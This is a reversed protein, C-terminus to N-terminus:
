GFIRYNDAKKMNKAPNGLAIVDGPISRFVVAGIAVVANDEM